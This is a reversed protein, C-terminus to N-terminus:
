PVSVEKFLPWGKKQSVYEKAQQDSLKVRGQLIDEEAFQVSPSYAEMVSVVEPAIYVAGLEQLEEFSVCFKEAAAEDAPQLGSSITEHISLATSSKSQLSMSTNTVQHESSMDESISQSSKDAIPISIQPYSSSEETTPLIPNVGPTLSTASNSALQREHTLSTSRCEPLISSLNEGLSYNSIGDLTFKASHTNKESSERSESYNLKVSDLGSDEAGAMSTSFSGLNDGDKLSENEGPIGVSPRNSHPELLNLNENGSNELKEANEGQSLRLQENNEEEQELMGLFDKVVDKPHKHKDDFPHLTNPTIPRTHSHSAVGGVKGDTYLRALDLLETQKKLRDVQALQLSFLRDDQIIILLFLCDLQIFKFM